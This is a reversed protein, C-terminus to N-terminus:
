VIYPIPNTFFSEDVEEPSGYKGIIVFIERDKGENTSTGFGRGVSYMRKWNDLFCLTDSRFGFKEGLLKELNQETVSVLYMGEKIKVYYAPEDSSPMSQMMERIRKTSDPVEKTETRNKPYGIRYWNSSHYVHVTSTSHGYTWRVATGAVDETFCHRRLDTHEKGEEKIYGFGFHSNIIYPWYPNEGLSCRLFTVLGQELDIVWTHNERPTKDKICYTLLYTWDDSKRCEYTETKPTGVSKTSWELRTEDLFCLVADGTDEGTDIVFEFRKGALEFCKPPCYQSISLKAAGPAYKEILNM